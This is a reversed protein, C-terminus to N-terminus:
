AEKTFGDFWVINGKKDRKSTDERQCHAQAEELSLGKKITRPRKNKDHYFRIIKYMIDEKGM